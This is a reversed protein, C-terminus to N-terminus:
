RVATQKWFFANGLFIPVNVLLLLLLFFSWRCVIFAEGLCWCKIIQLDRRVNCAHYPQETEREEKSQRLRSVAPTHQSMRKM